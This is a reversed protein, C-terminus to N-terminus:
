YGVLDLVVDELGLAKAMQKFKGVKGDPLFGLIKM